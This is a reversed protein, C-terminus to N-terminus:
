WGTIWRAALRKDRKLPSNTRFQANFQARRPNALARRPTMHEHSGGRLSRVFTQSDHGLLRWRISSDSTRRKVHNVPNFEPTRASHERCNM